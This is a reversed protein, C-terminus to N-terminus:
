NNEHYIIFLIIFTKMRVRHFELGNISSKEITKASQNLEGKTPDGVATNQNDNKALKNRSILLLTEEQDIDFDQLSKEDSMQLGQCYVDFLDPSINVLESIKAKLENIYCNEISIKSCNSPVNLQASDFPLLHFTYMQFGSLVRICVSM